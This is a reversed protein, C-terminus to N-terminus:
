RLHMLELRPLTNCRGPQLAPVGAVDLALWRWGMPQQRLAVPEYWGLCREDDTAQLSQLEVVQPSSPREQLRVHEREFRALIGLRHNLDAPVHALSEPVWALWARANRAEPHRCPATSGPHCAVGHAGPAAVLTLLLAFTAM